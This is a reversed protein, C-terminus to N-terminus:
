GLSNEQILQATYQSPRLWVVEDGLHRQVRRVVEVFAAWGLGNVPNLGQWHAYFICYPAGSRVLEVVRGRQGDASIYYDADTYEGANLWTALRDEANPALDYVACDGDRATLRARCEERHGGIFCPLTKGRFRGAKVLNLLAQWVNPNLDENGDPHLQAFRARCVACGCGPETMGSFRVGVREGEALINAFYAEYEGVGVGPEHMWLGEHLAGPPVCGRGFDYLGGHTMLEFHTDINSDEARRIQALQAEHLGSSPRSLLEGREEWGYGLIVSAEGAIGEGACFDLFIRLAEPPADYPNTDDCYFSLVTKTM